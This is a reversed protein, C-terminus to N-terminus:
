VTVLESFIGREKMEKRISIILSPYVEFYSATKRVSLYKQGNLRLQEQEKIADVIKKYKKLKDETSGKPRGLVIGKAKANLLGSRIHKRRTENEMEYVSLLQTFVLNAIPNPTGDEDLSKMNTQMSWLCVGVKHLEDKMQLATKVNRSFRSYDHFIFYKPKHKKVEDLLIKRGLLSKTGSMTEEYVKIVNLNNTLAFQKLERLQRETDQKDTSVRCYIFATEKNTRMSQKM